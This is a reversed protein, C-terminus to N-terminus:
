EDDDDDYFGNDVGDDDADNNSNVDDDLNGDDDGYDNDNDDDYKKYYLTRVLSETLGGVSVTLGLLVPYLYKELRLLSTVYPFCESPVAFNVESSGDSNLSYVFFTSPFSIFWVVM